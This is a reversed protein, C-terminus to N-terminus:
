ILNFFVCLGFTAYLLFVVGLIKLDIMLIKYTQTIYRKEKSLAKDEDHGKNVNKRFGIDFFYKYANRIVFPFIILCVIMISWIGDKYGLYIFFSLFVIVFINVLATRKRIKSDIQVVEKEKFNFKEFPKLSQDKNTM